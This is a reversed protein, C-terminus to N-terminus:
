KTENSPLKILKGLKQDQEYRSFKGLGVWDFFTYYGFYVHEDVYFFDVRLFIIDKSLEFALKKM